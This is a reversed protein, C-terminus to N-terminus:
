FKLFLINKLGKLALRVFHDFVSLFKTPLKAVFQKLTNSWKTFNASLYNLCIKLTSEFNYSRKLNAIHNELLIVTTQIIKSIEVFARKSQKGNTFQFLIICKIKRIQM